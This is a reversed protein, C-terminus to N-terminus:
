RQGEENEDKATATAKAKAKGQDQAKPQEALAEDMTSGQPDANLVAVKIVAEVSRHLQVTVEYEGVRKLNEHMHVQRPDVVFGGQELARVVDRTGVSGFLVDDHAVKAAISIRYGHLKAKIVTAQKERETEHKAAQERLVDVQRKTAADAMIALGQPLLCNRAYGAKVAVVDGMDGLKVVNETLLVELNKKGM